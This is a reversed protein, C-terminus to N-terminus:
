IVQGVFIIEGGDDFNGQCPSPLNMRLRLTIDDGIGMFNGWYNPQDKFVLGATNKHMVTWDQQMNGKNAKYDMNLISLVNSTPCLANGSGSDYMDTGYLNLFMYLGTGAEASNEVTFYPSYIVDGTNINGTIDDGGENYNLGFDQQSEITLGVAPNLWLSILGSATDCCGEEGSNCKDCVEVSLWYEGQVIEASEVTYICIYHGVIGQQSTRDLTCGVQSTTEGFEDQITGYAQIGDNAIGNIDEVTFTMTITEGDFAYSRGAWGDDLLQQMMVDDTMTDIEYEPTELIMPCSNTITIDLPISLETTTDALALPLALVMLLLAIIKKHKM